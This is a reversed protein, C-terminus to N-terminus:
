KSGKKPDAAELGSPKEEKKPDAPKPDAPAKDVPKDKSWGDKEWEKLASVNVRVSKDEKYVVVVAELM